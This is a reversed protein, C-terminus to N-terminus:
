TTYKQLGDISNFDQSYLDVHSSTLSFEEAMYYTSCLNAVHLTWKVLFLPSSLLSVDLPLLLRCEEDSGLHKYAQLHVLM